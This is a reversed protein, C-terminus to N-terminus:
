ASPREARRVSLPTCVSPEEASPELSRLDGLRRKVEGHRDVPVGVDLGQSVVLTAAARSELLAPVRSGVVRM